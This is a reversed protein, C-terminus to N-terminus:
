VFLNRDPQPHLCAGTAHLQKCNFLKVEAPLWLFPRWPGSRPVGAGNQQFRVVSAAPRSLLLLPVHFTKDLVLVDQPIEKGLREDTFWVSRSCRELKQQPLPESPEVGSVGIPPVLDDPHKGLKGRFILSDRRFVWLIFRRDHRRKLVPGSFGAASRVKGSM